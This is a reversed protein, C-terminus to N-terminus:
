PRFDVAVVAGGNRGLNRNEVRFDFCKSRVPLDFKIRFALGSLM